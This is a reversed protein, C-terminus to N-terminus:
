RQSFDRNPVEGSLSRRSVSHLWVAEPVLRWRLSRWVTHAASVALLLFAVGSRLSLGNLTVPRSPHLLGGLFGIVRIYAPLIFKM